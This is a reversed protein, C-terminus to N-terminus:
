RVGDDYFDVAHDQLLPLGVDDEPHVLWAALTKGIWWATSLWSQGASTALNMLFARLQEVREVTNLHTAAAAILVGILYWAWVGQSPILDESEVELRDARQTDYFALRFRMM